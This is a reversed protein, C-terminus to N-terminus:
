IGYTTPPPALGVAANFAAIQTNNTAWGPIESFYQTVTNITSNEISSNLQNIQQSLDLGAVTAAGACGCSCPQGPQYNFVDATAPPPLNLYFPFGGPPVTTIDYTVPDFPPWSVGGTSPEIVNENNGWDLLLLIIIVLAFGVLAWAQQSAKSWHYTKAAM